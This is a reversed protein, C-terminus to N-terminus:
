STSSSPTPPMAQTMRLGAAGNDAEHIEYEDSESTMHILKRIDAEDEVVLVIREDHRWEQEVNRRRIAAVSQM